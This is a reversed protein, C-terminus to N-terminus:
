VHSTLRHKFLNEIYKSLLYSILCNFFDKISNQNGGADAKRAPNFLITPRIRGTPRLIGGGTKTGRLLKSLNKLRKRNSTSNYHTSQQIFYLTNFYLELLALSNTSTLEM